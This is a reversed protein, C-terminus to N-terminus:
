SPDQGWVPEPPRRNVHGYAISIWTSAKVLTVMVRFWTVAPNFVLLRMRQLIFALWNEVLWNMWNSM